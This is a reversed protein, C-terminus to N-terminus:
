WVPCRASFDEGILVLRVLILLIGCFLRVFLLALYLFTEQPM